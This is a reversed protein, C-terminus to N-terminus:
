KDMNVQSGFIMFEQNNSPNEEDLLQERERLSKLDQNFSNFCATVVSMDVENPADVVKRCFLPIHFRENM